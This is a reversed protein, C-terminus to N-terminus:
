RAIQVPGHALRQFKDAKGRTQVIQPGHPKAVAGEGSGTKRRVGWSQSCVPGDGPPTPTRIATGLSRRYVAYPLLACPIRSDVYYTIRIVTFCSCHSPEPPQRNRNSVSVLAASAPPRRTGSQEWVGVAPTPPDGHTDVLLCKLISMHFMFGHRLLHQKFQTSPMHLDSRPRSIDQIPAPGSFLQPSKLISM